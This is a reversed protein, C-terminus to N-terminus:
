RCGSGRRRRGPWPACSTASAPPSGPTASPVPHAMVASLLVSLSARRELYRSRFVFGPATTKSFALPSIRSMSSAPILRVKRGTREGANIGHSANHRLSLAGPRQWGSRRRRRPTPPARTRPEVLHALWAPAVAAADVGGPTLPPGRPTQPTSGRLALSRHFQRPVSGM